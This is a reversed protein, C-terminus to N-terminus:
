QLDHNSEQKPSLDGLVGGFMDDEFPAVHKAYLGDSSLTM